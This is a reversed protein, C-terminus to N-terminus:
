VDEDVLAKRPSIVSSSCTECWTALETILTATRHAVFVQCTCSGDESVSADVGEGM